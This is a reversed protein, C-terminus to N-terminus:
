KLEGPGMPRCGARLAMHVPIVLQLVGVAVCTMAGFKRLRCIRVVNRTAEAVGAIRAVGGSDPGRRREAMHCRRKRQHPSVLGNGTVLAM